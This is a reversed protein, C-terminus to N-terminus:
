FFLECIFPHQSACNDDKLTSDRILGCDANNQQVENNPYKYDKNNLIYGDFITLDVPSGDVNFWQGETQIDSAGIYVDSPVLTEYNSFM